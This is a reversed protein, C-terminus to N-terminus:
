CGLPAKVAAPERREYTLLCCGLALGRDDADAASLAAVSARIQRGEFDHIPATGHCAAGDGLKPRRHATRNDESFRCGLPNGSLKELAVITTM